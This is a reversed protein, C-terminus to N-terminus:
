AQAESVPGHTHGGAEIGASLAVLEFLDLVELPELDEIEELEHGGGGADLDAAVGM